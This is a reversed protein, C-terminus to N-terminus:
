SLAAMTLVDDPFNCPGIIGDEQLQRCEADSLGLRDCLIKANHEGLLPPALDYCV